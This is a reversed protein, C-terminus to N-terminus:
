PGGPGTPAIEAEVGDLGAVLRRGEAAELVSLASALVDATTASPAVVAVTPAHPVGVGTRPDVIHSYRVGDRELAQYRDGSTAVGVGSLRRVSGDPFEIRWGEEGPPAAGLALDGGADVLVATLGRARLTDLVAAAAFGKAIGGLDLSMGPRRLAATGAERDRVLGDIGAAARAEALRASDPWEGRRIAWRWLRTLPGVTVDFAGGTREAWVLATDLVAGLEPSVPRAASPTGAAAALGAIESDNRYDSFLSDLRAVTAFAAAAGADAASRDPAYIVLRVATGM